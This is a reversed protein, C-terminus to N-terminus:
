SSKKKYIQDAGSHTGTELVLIVLEENEDFDWIIRVDGTVWSSYVDTNKKTDVKHTNLSPYFPDQKLQGFTKAFQKELRSNGKVLKQYGKKFGKKLRLHFM